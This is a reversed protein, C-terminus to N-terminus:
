LLRWIFGTEAGFDNSFRLYKYEGYDTEQYVVKVRLANFTLLAPM